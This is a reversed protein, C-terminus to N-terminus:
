PTRWLSPNITGLPSGFVPPSIVRTGSIHLIIEDLGSHNADLKDYEVLDIGFQYKYLDRDSDALPAAVLM